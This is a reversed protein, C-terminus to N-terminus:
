RSSAAHPSEPWLLPQIYERLRDAIRQNGADTLHVRDVALAPDHMDVEHGLDLYHVERDHGFRAELMARLARQEAIQLDYGYPHTVVLVPKGRERVAAIARYTADCYARWPEACTDVSVSSEPSRRGLWQIHRSFSDTATWAAGIVAAGARHVISADAVAPQNADAAALSGYRLVLAKERLAAPLLPYYGSLRYIASGDRIIEHPTSTANKEGYFVVFDPDLYRYDEFVARYAYANERPLGLNVVSVPTPVRGGLDRELMAPFAQQWANKWGYVTSGGIIVVRREYQKKRGAIPGRYGWVNIAATNAQRRHAYIDLLLMAASAVVLALVITVLAFVRRQRGTLAPSTM